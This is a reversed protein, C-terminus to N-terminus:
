LTQLKPSQSFNEVARLLYGYVHICVGKGMHQHAQLFM